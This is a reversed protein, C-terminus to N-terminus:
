PRQQGSELHKSKPHQLRVIRGDEVKDLEVDSDILDGDGVREGTHLGGVHALQQASQPDLLPLFQDGWNDEGADQSLMEGLQVAGHVVGRGQVQGRLKRQDVILKGPHM